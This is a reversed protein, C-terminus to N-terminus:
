LWPSEKFILNLVQFDDCTSPDLSGNDGYLLPYVWWGLDTPAGIYGHFLSETMLPHISKEWGWFFAVPKVM